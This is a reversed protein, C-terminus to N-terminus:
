EDEEPFDSFAPAATLPVVRINDFYIKETAPVPDFVDAIGNNIFHPGAQQYSAAAMQAMVDALLKGEFDASASFPLTITFWCGPNVFAEKNYKGNVYVPEYLMCYKTDGSGDAMVFRIFGSNWEGEVYIDMQIGCENAFASSPINAAMISQMNTSNLWFKLSTGASANGEANFVQYGGQSAPKANEPIATTLATNDIGSGWSYNQVDDFNHLLGEKFNFDPTSYAGGNACEVLISGSKNVGEPVTVRVWKGDEDDSTIGSTVVVQPDGPFTVKSTFQLGNGTLVIEDGAQPMTHSVATIGPAASRIELDFTYVNDGKFLSIKNKNEPAVDQTPVRGSVQVIMSTESRLTTNFLVEVGNILIKSVGMFGSGELRLTQGLRVFNGYPTLDRDPVSSQADELYFKNIKVPTSLDVTEEDCSSLGCTMLLAVIIWINKLVKIKM